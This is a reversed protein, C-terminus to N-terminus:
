SGGRRRTEISLWAGHTSTRSTARAMTRASVPRGAAAQQGGADDAM